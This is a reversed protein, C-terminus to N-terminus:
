LSLRVLKLPHKSSELAYIPPKQLAEQYNLKQVIQKEEKIKLFYAFEQHTMKIGCRLTNPGIIKSGASKWQWIFQIPAPNEWLPLIQRHQSVVFYRDHLLFILLPDTNHWDLILCYKKTRRVKHSLDCSGM